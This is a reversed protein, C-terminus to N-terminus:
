SDDRKLRRAYISIQKWRAKEMANPKMTRRDALYAFEKQLKLYSEFRKRDLTGNKLATQVACGPENVHTCDKFRCGASLEEIDGFAHELGSEDGWVQIERMGPTDIVMGGGPLVILERHTTTHRGRSGLGSVENVDLRDTGLFSNIITSKGVGSSGIFAVTRGPDLFKKLAALGRHGVASLLIVDIGTAIAEVDKKKAEADPCLDSKNVLIVPVARSEWALALFREIRRPNFNLDLGTVIFVTDINAAVVQEDSIQGAVKRIFASKRPLVAHTMAKREGPVKEAVVWDGVTPFDGKGGSQYGFRGTVECAFDGTADCAICSGRNVRIVRLACHGAAQYQGFFSEFYPSWGLDYLKM